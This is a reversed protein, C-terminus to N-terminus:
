VVTPLRKWVSYGGQTPLPLAYCPPCPYPQCTRGLHLWYTPPCTSVHRSSSRRRGAGSILQEYHLSLPPRSPPAQGWVWVEVVLGRGSISVGRVRGACVSLCYQTQPKTLPPRPNPDIIHTPHPSPFLTHTQYILTFSPRMTGRVQCFIQGHSKWSWKKFNGHGNCKKIKCELCKTSFIPFHLSEVEMSLKKTTAFFVM